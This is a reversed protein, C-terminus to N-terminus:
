GPSGPDLGPHRLERGIRDAEIIAEYISDGTVESTLNHSPKGEQAAIEAIRRIDPDSAELGFAGLTYPLGVDRCFCATERITSLPAKEACLHALTGFAVQEGHTYGRMRPFSTFADSLSHAIAVGGSEFGLGSLLTNAEVIRELAPDVTKKECAEKAAAGYEMLTELCLRALGLTTESIAGGFNNLSKSNSCTVAEYYTALADGMGSVLTRVPARAIIETDVLVIRPSNKLPQMRNFTGDDNHIIALASCPADNGAMTPVVVAPVGLQEAAAKVADIAKGGGTAIIVDCGLSRGTEALRGIERDSPEGSFVIETQKVGHAEFSSTRGERTVALGTNGGAVLADGAFPKIFGGIEYIAGAGQIYRSPAGFITINDM